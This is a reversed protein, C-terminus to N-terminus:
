DPDAAYDWEFLEDTAAGLSEPLSDLAPRFHKLCDNDKCLKDVVQRQADMSPEADGVLVAGLLALVTADAINNDSVDLGWRKFLDRLVHEKRIPNKPSGGTGCCFKKLSSPAVMVYPIKEALLEARVMCHLGYMEYLAAGKSGFSPGELCVLDPKPNDIRADIQDM